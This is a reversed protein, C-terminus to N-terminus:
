TRAERELAQLCGSLFASVEAAFADPKEFHAAHGAGAIIRVESGAVRASMTRALGVYREDLAGALFLTPVRVEHLRELVPEQAGAGMGRLSNALGTATNRLRQARLAARREEPLQKQSDWLPISQWYDVFAEVGDREIRDALEEDSRVRALRESPDSIGPSASELVLASLRQPHRLAFHLATRGGMSYGLLATRELGLADLLAALDDVCQPMRYHALDPPSDSDGHGILDVAVLRFGPWREAFPLWASARGTFGHLLTLPAGSGAEEVNLRVGGVDIRTV